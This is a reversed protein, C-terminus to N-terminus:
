KIEILEVEFSLAANGPITPPSGREGYAIEPPCIILSKGRVKMMGVGESWCPIVRDLPFEFPGGRRESSDFVTGDRLSGQYHVKVTDAPQPSDGSGAIIETYILGSETRIAGKRQAAEALFAHAKLKEAEAVKKMRQQGLEQIKPHYTARELELQKGAHAERLGRILIELEEHSLTFSQLSQEMAIGMYYFIKEDESLDEARVAGAGTCLALAATLALLPRVLPGRSPLSASHLHSHATM